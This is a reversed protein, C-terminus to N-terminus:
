YNEEIKKIEQLVHDLHSKVLELNDQRAALLLSLKIETFVEHDITITKIQNRNRQKILRDNIQGNFCTSCCGFHVYFEHQDIEKGCEQCRAKNTKLVTMNYREM